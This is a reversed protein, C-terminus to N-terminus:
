DRPGRRGGFSSKKSVNCTADSGTDTGYCTWTWGTNFSMRGNDSSGQWSNTSSVSSAAGKVCVASPTSASSQGSLGGCQGNVPNLKRATCAKSKGTNIGNCTWTWLRNDQVVSANGSICLGTTPKSVSGSIAVGGCKGDIIDLKTAKCVSSSGGSIGLCTWAFKKAGNVDTVISARGSACLNQDPPFIFSGSRASGCLGNEQHPQLASSDGSCLTKGNNTMQKSFRSMLGNIISNIDIVQTIIPNYSPLTIRLSTKIKCSAPSSKDAWWPISNNRNKIQIGENSCTVKKNEEVVDDLAIYKNYCAPDSDSNKSIPILEINLRPDNCFGAVQQYTVSNPMRNALTLCSNRFKQTLNISNINNFLNSLSETNGVAKQASAHGVYRRYISEFITGDELKPSYENEKETIFKNLVDSLKKNLKDNLRQTLSQGGPAPVFSATVLVAGLSHVGLTVKFAKELSGTKYLTYLGALPAAIVSGIGVVLYTLWSVDFGISLPSINVGKLSIQYDTYSSSKEVLQTAPDVTAAFCVKSGDFKFGLNRVYGSVSASMWWNKIYTYDINLDHMRLSNGPNISCLAVNLKGDVPDLKIFQKGLFATGTNFSKLAKADLSPIDYNTSANLRNIDVIFPYRRAGSKDSYEIPATILQKKTQWTALQSNAASTVDSSVNAVQTNYATNCANRRKTRAAGRSDDIDYLCQDLDDQYKKLLDDRIRSQANAVGVPSLGYITKGLPYENCTYQEDPNRTDYTGGAYSCIDSQLYKNGADKVAFLFSVLDNYHLDYDLTYTLPAGSAPGNTQAVAQTNPQLFLAVSLVYKIFLTCRNAM